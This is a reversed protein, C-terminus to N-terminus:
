RRIHREPAMAQHLIRLVLLLDQDAVYDYFIRHKGCSVYRPPLRVGEYVPGSLPHERLRHFAARIADVYDRAVEAGFQEISYRDIEALDKRAERRLVLKTM